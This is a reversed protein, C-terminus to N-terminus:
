SGATTRTPSTSSSGRRTPAAILEDAQRALIGSLVLAAAPTSWRRCCRRSCSSRRPSSTPSSSSTRGSSATRCAPARARRRQRAREGADSRDGGSRHRGRRRPARRVPAGRDRPHGLRLRLRARAALATGTASGHEAIWRLCMRTTPHTGTGFALGPDLRIVQARKPRVEPWTPVIWFAPTIECPGFQSQTLRVWDQEDVADISEIRLTADGSARPSRPPRRPRRPRTPSCRAARAVRQWAADAPSAPSASCRSSPTAAPM